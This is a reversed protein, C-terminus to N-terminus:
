YEEKFVDRFKDNWCNRVSSGTTDYKFLITEIKERDEESIADTEWVSFDKKGHCWVFGCLKDMIVTM